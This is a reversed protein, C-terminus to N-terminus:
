VGTSLYESDIESRITREAEDTSRAADTIFEAIHKHRDAGPLLLSAGYCVSLRLLTPRFEELLEQAVVGYFVKKRRDVYPSTEHLLKHRKADLTEHTLGQIDRYNSIQREAKAQDEALQDTADMPVKGAVIDAHITQKRTNMNELMAALRNVQLSADSLREELERIEAEAENQQQQAAFFAERAAQVGESFAKEVKKTM